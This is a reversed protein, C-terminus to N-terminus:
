YVGEAKHTPQTLPNKRETAGFQVAHGDVHVAHEVGDFQVEHGFLPVTVLPDHGDAAAVFAVFPLKMREPNAKREAM